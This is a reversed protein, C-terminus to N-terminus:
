CEEGRSIKEFCDFVNKTGDNVAKGVLGPKARALEDIPKKGNRERRLKNELTKSTNRLKIVEHNLKEKSSIIAKYDAQLREITLNQQIVISKLSAKEEKLIDIRHSQYKFTAYCSLVTIGIALGGLVYKNMLFTMVFPPIM